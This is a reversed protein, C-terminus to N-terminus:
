AWNPTAWAGIFILVRYTFLSQTSRTFVHRGWEDVILLDTRFTYQILACCVQSTDAIYYLWKVDPCSIKPSATYRYLWRKYVSNIIKLIDIQECQYRYTFQHLKLMLM